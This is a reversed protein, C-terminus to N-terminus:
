TKQTKWLAFWVKIGDTAPASAAYKMIRFILAVNAFGSRPAYIIETLAFTNEEKERILHLVLRLASKKGIGPLRSIQNVAEEILKSSFEM